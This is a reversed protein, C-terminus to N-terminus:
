SVVRWWPTMSSCSPAATPATWKAATRTGIRTTRMRMMTTMITRTRMRSCFAEVDSLDDSIADIEEGYEDLTADIDELQDGIEKLVDLVEALIRAEKSESKDLDMGDFMGQIYAIKESVTM